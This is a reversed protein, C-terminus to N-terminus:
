RCHSFVRTFSLAVNLPVRRSTQEHTDIDKATDNAHAIDETNKANDEMHNAAGKGHEDIDDRTM